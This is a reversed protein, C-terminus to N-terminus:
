AARNQKRLRKRDAKTLKRVHGAEDLDEGEDWSEDADSEDRDTAKLDFTAKLTAPKGTAEDETSRKKAKKPAAPKASHEILGQVDLVVYRAFVMLGVLAVTHGVLPLASTIAGAWPGIVAPSWGLSGAAAVGYCTAALLIMALSTRCEAIEMALRIFIWGGVIAVPALWWESATATLSWGTLSALCKAIVAHAQMVSDISAVLAVWGLRRWVRYRGEYDDVRHRRLSYILKALLAATMLAIASAWTIAGGAVREAL